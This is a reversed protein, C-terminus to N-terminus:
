LRYFLCTKGSGCLGLIVVTDKHFGGRSAGAKGGALKVLPLVLLLALMSVIALLALLLPGNEGLHAAFGSAAIREELVAVTGGLWSRADSVEVMNNRGLRTVKDEGITFKITIKYETETM